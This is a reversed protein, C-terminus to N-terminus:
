KDEAKQGNKKFKLTRLVQFPHNVEQVEDEVAVAATCESELHMPVQPLALILEDELIELIDVKGDQINVAEYMDPLQKAEADSAVPSDIFDCHVAYTFPQLCRQCCLSVVGELEGTLVCLKDADTSFVVKYSLEGQSRDGALLKSVRLMDAVVVQGALTQQQAALKYPDVYWVNM